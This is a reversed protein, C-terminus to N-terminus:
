LYATTPISYAVHFCFNLPVQLLPAFFYHHILVLFLLTYTDLKWLLLINFFSLLSPPLSPLLIPSLSTPMYSLVRFFNLSLSLNLAIILPIPFIQPYAETVFTNVAYVSADTQKGLLSVFTHDRMM